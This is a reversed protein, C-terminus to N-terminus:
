PAENERGIQILYTCIFCREFNVERGSVKYFRIRQIRREGVM